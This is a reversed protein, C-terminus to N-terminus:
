HVKEDFRVVPADFWKFLAAPENFWKFRQSAANREARGSENPKGLERGKLPPRPSLSSFSSRRLHMSGKSGLRLSM